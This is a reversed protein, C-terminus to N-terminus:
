SVWPPSSSRRSSGSTPNIGVVGTDLVADVTAAVDAPSPGYGAEIDASVPCSVAKVITTVARVMADLSIRQADQLGQAYAIGASTTGIATFGAEEFIRASAADWANPLLLRGARNQERFREALSQQLSSM